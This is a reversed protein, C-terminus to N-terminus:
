NRNKGSVADKAFELASTVSAAAGALIGGGTTPNDHHNSQHVVVVRRMEQGQGPSSNYDVTEVRKEPVGQTTTAETEKRTHSNM